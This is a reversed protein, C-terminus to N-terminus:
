VAESERREMDQAASSAASASAAAPAATRRLRRFNQLERRRRFLDVSEEASFLTVQTLEGSPMWQVRKLPGQVLEATLRQGKVLQQNLKEMAKAASDKSPFQLFGSRGASAEEPRQRPFEVQTPLVLDGGKLLELLDGSQLDKSVESIKVLWCPTPAEESDLAQRVQRTLYRVNQETLNQLMSPHQSLFAWTLPHEQLFQEVVPSLPVVVQPPMVPQPPAVSGAAVSEASDPAVTPTRPASTVMIQGLEAPTQPAALPLQAAVGDNSGDPPTRPASTVMIQGLEPPTQPAARPVDQALGGRLEVEGRIRLVETGPIEKGNRFFRLNPIAGQGFAVGIIDDKVTVSDSGGEDWAAALRDMVPGDGEWRDGVVESERGGGDDPGPRQGNLELAVGCFARSSTGPELVRIEWYACDQEVVCNALAVGHGTVLLGSHDSTVMSVKSIKSVSSMPCHPMKDVGIPWNYVLCIAYFWGGLGPPGESAGRAQRDPAQASSRMKMKLKLGGTSIQLKESNGRGQTPLLLVALEAVRCSEGHGQETRFGGVGWSQVRHKTESAAGRFGFGFDILRAPPNLDADSRHPCATLAPGAVSCVEGAVHLSETGAIHFILEDRFLDAGNEQACRSAELFTVERKEKLDVKNGVTIISIDARALTRADALWNVLHNYSDRNTIDYVILAGAAGRYYSRTVSRYREQGATDWIQLKINRGGVTIVKSGFEVGITHSSGKKFKNDIFQHLLCSKGAGADGIIIFKFLYDYKDKESEM